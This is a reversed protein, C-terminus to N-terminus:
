QFVINNTESQSRLYKKSLSIAKEKAVELSYGDKGLDELVLPGRNNFLRVVAVYKENYLKVARLRLVPQEQSGEVFSAISEHYGDNENFKSIKM